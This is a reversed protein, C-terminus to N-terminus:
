ANSKTKAQNFLTDEIDGTCSISFIALILILLKNKVMHM